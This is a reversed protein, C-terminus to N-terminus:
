ARRARGSCARRRNVKGPPPIGGHPRRDGRDRWYSHRSTWYRQQDSSWRVPRRYRDYVYYGSGPYYYGDNWGWYPNGAYGGFYDDGYYGGSTGYGVSLGGGGFGSRGSGSGAYPNISLGRVRVVLTPGRGGLRDAFSRRLAATLDTRLAEAQLGGGQALLPGVDVRLASFNEARLPALAASGVLLAFGFGGVSSLRRLSM